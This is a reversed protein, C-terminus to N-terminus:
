ESSKNLVRTSVQTVSLTIFNQKCIINVIKNVVKAWFKEEFFKTLLKQECGMHMIRTLLKQEFNKNMVM